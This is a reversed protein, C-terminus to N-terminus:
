GERLGCSSLIAAKDASKVGGFYIMSKDENMYLGSAKGFDILVHMVSRIAQVDGRSFVMLDDAFCLHTLGIRACKPHYNFESNEKLQEFKRSLFEMAIVFMFSSMSNGHRLGRKGPFYDELVGNIIVSFSSTTVCVM